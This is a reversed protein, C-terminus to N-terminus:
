LAFVEEHTETSNHNNTQDKRRNTYREQKAKTESPVAFHANTNNAEIQHLINLGEEKQKKAGEGEQRRGRHCSLPTALLCAPPCASLHVGSINGGGLTLFLQCFATQLPPSPVHGRKKWGRGKSTLVLRKRGNTPGLFNSAIQWLM